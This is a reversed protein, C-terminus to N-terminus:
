PVIPRFPLSSPLDHSRQDRHAHRQNGDRRHSRLRLLRRRGRPRLDILRVPVAIHLVVLRRQHHLGVTPNLWHIRVAVHLRVLRAELHLAVPDVLGIGVAVHLRCLGDYVTCGSPRTM